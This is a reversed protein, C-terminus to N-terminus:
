KMKKLLLLVVWHVGDININGDRTVLQRQQQTSNTPTTTTHEKASTMM